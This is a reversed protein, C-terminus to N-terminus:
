GDVCIEGDVFHSVLKVNHAFGESKQTSMYPERVYYYMQKSEPSFHTAKSMQNAKEEM